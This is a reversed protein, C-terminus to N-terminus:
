NGMLKKYNFPFMSKWFSNFQMSFTSKVVKLPRGIDHQYIRFHLGSDDNKIFIEEIYEHRGISIIAIFRADKKGDIYLHLGFAGPSVTEFKFTKATSFLHNKEIKQTGNITKICSKFSEYDILSIECDRLPYKNPNSVVLERGVSEKNENLSIFLLGEDGNIYKLLTDASEQIKSATKEFNKVQNNFLKIDGAELGTLKLITTDVGRQLSDNQRRLTDNIQRVTDVKREFHDSKLKQDRGFIVGLICGVVILGLSVYRLIDIRGQYRQKIFDLSAREKHKVLADIFFQVCTGAVVLLYTLILQWTEM